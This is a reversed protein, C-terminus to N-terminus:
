FAACGRESRARELAARAEATGRMENACLHIARCADSADSPWAVAGRAAGECLRAEDRAGWKPQCGCLVWGILLLAARKM